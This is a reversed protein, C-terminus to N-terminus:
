DQQVGSETNPTPAVGPDEESICACTCVCMCVCYVQPASNESCLIKLWWGKLLLLTPSLLYGYLHLYWSAFRLLFPSSVLPHNTLRRKDLKGPVCALLSRSKREQLLLLRSWEVNPRSFQQPEDEWFASIFIGKPDVGALTSEQDAHILCSPCPYPHAQAACIASLYSTENKLM